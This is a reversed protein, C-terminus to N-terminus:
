TCCLLQFSKWRVSMLAYFTLFSSQFFGAFSYGTTDLHLLLTPLKEMQCEDTCLVCSIIISLYHAFHAPPEFRVLSLLLTTPNKKANKSKKIKNLFTDLLQHFESWFEQWLRHFNDISVTPLIRAILTM